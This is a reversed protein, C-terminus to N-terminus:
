LRQLLGQHLLRVAHPQEDETTAALRGLGGLAVEPAVDLLHHAGQVARDEGNGLAELLGPARQDGEVALGHGALAHLHNGAARQEAVQRHM